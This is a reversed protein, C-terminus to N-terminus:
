TTTQAAIGYLALRRFMADVQFPTLKPRRELWWTLMTLFTGVIFQVRVDRPVADNDQISSLDKRVLDSLIQRIENIATTGGRGGVLARYVETYRSAHEFMALSFRLPGDQSGDSKESALGHAQELEARLTQFGSRLLDEKGTYHSYFTSRGIDAENIIDQITIAEYGKSSPSIHWM